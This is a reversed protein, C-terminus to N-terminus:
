GCAVRAQTSQLWGFAMSVHLQWCGDRVLRKITLHLGLRGHARTRFVARQLSASTGLTGTKHAGAIDRPYEGGQAHQWKSLLREQCQGSQM